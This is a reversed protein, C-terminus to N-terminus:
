SGGGSFERSPHSSRAFMAQGTGESGQGCWLGLSFTWWVGNNKSLHFCLQWRLQRFRLMHPHHTKDMLAQRAKVGGVQMKEVLNGPTEDM